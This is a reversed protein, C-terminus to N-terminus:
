DKNPHSYALLALVLLVNGLAPFPCNPLYIQNHTIYDVCFVLVKNWYRHVNNEGSPVVGMNAVNMIKNNILTNKSSMIVIATSENM